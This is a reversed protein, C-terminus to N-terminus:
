DKGRQQAEIKKTERLYIWSALLFGVAFFFAWNRSKSGQNIFALEAPKIQQKGSFREVPFLRPADGGRRGPKYENRDDVRKVLILAERSQDFRLYDQWNHYDDPSTKGTGIFQWLKKDGEEEPNIKFKRFSLKFLDEEKEWEGVVDQGGKHDDDYAAPVIGWAQGSFIGAGLQYSDLIGDMSYETWPSPRFYNYTMSVLSLFLCIGGVFATMNRRFSLSNIKEQYNWEAERKLRIEEPDVVASEKEDEVRLGYQSVDVMGPLAQMSHAVTSFGLASSAQGAWVMWEQWGADQQLGKKEIVWHVIRGLGGLDWKEDPTDTASAEQPRFRSTEALSDQVNLNMGGGQGEIEEQGIAAFTMLKWLGFETVWAKVQGQDNWELLINRPKLNGHVVGGLHARHLAQHLCIMIELLVEPTIKQPDHELFDALSRLWVEEEEPNESEPSSDAQLMISRGQLWPYYIWHKWKMVGFKHIPWIGPGEVQELAQCEQLFYDEFGKSESIERHILKAYVTVGKGEGETEVCEYSQGCSGDGLWSVIRSPGIRTGSSLM